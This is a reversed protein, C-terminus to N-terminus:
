MLEEIGAKKSNFEVHRAHSDNGVDSSSNDM